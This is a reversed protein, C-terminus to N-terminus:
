SHAAVVLVRALLIFGFGWAPIWFRTANMDKGSVRKYVFGIIWGIAAGVAFIIIFEILMKARNTLVGESRSPKEAEFAEALASKAKACFDAKQADDQMMSVLLNAMVTAQASIDEKSVKQTKAASELLTERVDTTQANHECVKEYVIITAVTKAEAQEQAYSPAAMLAFFAVFLIKLMTDGLMERLLQM